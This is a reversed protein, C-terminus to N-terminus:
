NQKMYNKVIFNFVSRINAVIDSGNNTTIQALKKVSPTQELFKENQTYQQFLKTSASPLALQDKAPFTTNKYLTTKIDMQIKWDKQGNIEFYLIKNGQNDKYCNQPKPSISFSEVKQTESDVPQSLWVRVCNDTPSSFIATYQINFKKPSHLM